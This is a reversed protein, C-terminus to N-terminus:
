KEFVAMAEIHATHPFMNMVLTTRLTYGHEHQLLGADRALTSPNCSVYVIRVPNMKAIFPLIEQAGARPPDLLVKQYSRKLWPANVEPAFLNAAHFSVNTLQNLRANDQGREVMEQGGEVGVVEKALRALPLTFNGIGCFLDLVTEDPQIDLLDLAQKVMLRNMELNVQTFDLPHFQFRLDFDPLTYHLREIGATPWIRHVPAPNNPQLYIHIDHEKGFDVLKAQDAEDLPEMHRFVLALEEDGMAMEIQPISMYAKLSRILRALADLQHGVRPHLVECRNLEALYRSARERFGVLLKDKKTVYKAGLRAKRRYGVLNASLPPLLTEPKVKGFHELQELLTQQKLALQVSANMHQLSCGGCLGFHQCPPTARNESANLIATAEGEQYTRHNRLMRFEVTEGPLAGEIFTTKQQVTAIGRGDHSLNHITGEFTTKNM